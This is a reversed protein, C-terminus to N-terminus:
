NPNYPPPNVDEYRPPAVPEQQPHANANEQADSHGQNYGDNFANVREQHNHLSGERYGDDYGKQYRRESYNTFHNILDKTSFRQAYVLHNTRLNKLLFTGKQQFILQNPNSLYKTFVDSDDELFYVQIRDLDSWDMLDFIFMPDPQDIEQGRFWQGWTQSNQIHPFIKWCTEDDLIVINNLSNSLKHISCLFKRENGHPSSFFKDAYVLSPINKSGMPILEAFAKQGNEENVLIHTCGSFIKGTKHYVSVFFTDRWSLPDFYYDASLSWEEPTVNNWWEYWTKKRKQDLSNIKWLSGDDLSIIWEENDYYNLIIQKRVEIQDGLFPDANLKLVSLISFIVVFLKRM